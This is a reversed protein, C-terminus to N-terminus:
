TTNRCIKMCSTLCPLTKAKTQSTETIMLDKVCPMVQMVTIRQKKAFEKIIRDNERKLHWERLYPKALILFGSLLMIVALLNVIKKMKKRGAKMM